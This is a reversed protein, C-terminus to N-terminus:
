RGHKMGKGRVGARRTAVRKAVAQEFAVTPQEQALLQDLNKVIESEIRHRFVALLLGLKAELVFKDESVTLQGHVGARKFRVRDVTAGEEYVFHVALHEEAAHVWKLALQRAGALGLAHERAIQIESM